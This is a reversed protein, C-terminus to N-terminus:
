EVELLAVMQAFGRAKAHDLPRVGQGDAINRDAGADLLAKLSKLHNEGGNGLVVVEILATWSLNNIHDLPANAAILTSIIRHHGLHAAAILATGDYPSTINRASAGVRLVMELMELDNAVAAITVIDYAQNDLANVDAGAAALSKVAQENSAYAAVHIPTRGSGDRQELDAGKSIFMQLMQNDGLYAAKHLGQYNAADSASPPTQANSHNPNILLLCVLILAFAAIEATDILKVNKIM